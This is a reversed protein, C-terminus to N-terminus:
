GRSCHEWYEFIPSPRTLFSLVPSHVTSCSVILVDGITKLDFIVHATGNRLQNNHARCSGYTTLVILSFLCRLLVAMTCMNDALPLTLFKGPFLDERDLM